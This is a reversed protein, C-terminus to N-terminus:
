PRARVARLERQLADYIREALADATGVGLIEVEVPFYYNVVQAPATVLRAAADTPAEIREDKYVLALGTRDVIQAEARSGNEAAM